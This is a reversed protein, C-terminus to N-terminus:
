KKTRLVATDYPNFGTSEDIDEPSSLDIIKIDQVTAVFESAYVDPMEVDEVSVAHSSQDDVVPSKSRSLKAILAGIIRKM